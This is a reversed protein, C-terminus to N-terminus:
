FHSKSSFGFSVFCTLPASSQSWGGLCVMNASGLTVSGCPWLIGLGVVAHADISEYRWEDTLEPIRKESHLKKTPNSTTEGVKLTVAVKEKSSTWLFGKLSLLCLKAFIKPTSFCMIESETEHKM